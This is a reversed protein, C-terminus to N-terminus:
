RPHTRSGLDIADNGRVMLKNFSKYEHFHGADPPQLVRLAEHEINHNVSAWADHSM